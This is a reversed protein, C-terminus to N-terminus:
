VINNLIDAFSADKQNWRWDETLILFKNCDLLSAKLHAPMDDAGENNHHYARDNEKVTKAFFMEFDKRLTPDANKNITLWAPARVVDRIVPDFGRKEKPYIITQRFIKIEPLDNRTLSRLGMAPLM